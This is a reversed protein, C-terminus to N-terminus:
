DTTILTTTTGITSIPTTQGAFTNAPLTAPSWGLTSLRKLAEDPINQFVVDATIAIESMSPHGATVVHMFLDARGDTLMDVVQAYSTHTVRGGFSKIAEYSADVAGMVQGSVIEGLSGKTMTVLNIPMKKKSIESLSTIKSKRTAVIGVFYEDLGGVLGRLNTMKKDYVIGGKLAWVGTVPFGLGLEAKGESVLNMNGAAGAYPLIDIVSGPPLDNRLVSGMVGGYVYWSSGIPMTAIRIKQVDLAGCPQSSFFLLGISLLLFMLRKM